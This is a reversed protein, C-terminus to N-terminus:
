SFQIGHSTTITLCTYGTKRNYCATQVCVKSQKVKGGRVGEATCKNLDKMPIRLNKQTRIPPFAKSHSRKLNQFGEMDLESMTTNKEDATAKGLVNACRGFNLLLIQTQQNKGPAPGGSRPDNKDIQQGFNKRHFDGDEVLLMVRVVINWKRDMDTSTKQLGWIMLYIRLSLVMTSLTLLANLFIM